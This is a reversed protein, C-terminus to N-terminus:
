NNLQKGPKKFGVPQNLGWEKKNLSPTFPFASISVFPNQNMDSWAFVSTKQSVALSSGYYFFFNVINSPPTFAVPTEWSQGNTSTFAAQGTFTGDVWCTIFGQDNGAVLVTQYLCGAVGTAIPAPATWHVGDSSFISWLNLSSDPFAILFGHANAACGASGNSFVTLGAIPIPIGTSNWSTGNTSTAVYLNGSGDVTTALLMNSNGCGQVSTSANGPFILQSSSQWSSGDSSLNAYGNGPDGIFTALFGKPTSSSFIPTSPFILTDISTQPGWTHNQTNFFMSYPNGTNGDTWTLLFGKTNASVFPILAANNVIPTDPTWSAGLDSSFSGLIDNSSQWIVLIEGSPNTQVVPIGSTNVSSDNAVQIPAGPQIVFGYSPSNLFILIATVLSALLKM